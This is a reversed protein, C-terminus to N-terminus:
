SFSSMVADAVQNVPEAMLAEVAGKDNRVVIGIGAKDDKYAAEVNLKLFKHPPPNWSPRQMEKLEERDENFLKYEKVLEKAVSIILRSDRREAEKTSCSEELRERKIGM